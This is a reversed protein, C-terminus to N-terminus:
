IDLTVNKNGILMQKKFAKSAESKDEDVITIKQSDNVFDKVPNASNQGSILSAIVAFIAIYMIVQGLQSRFIKFFLKFVQM